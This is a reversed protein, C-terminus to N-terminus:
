NYKGDDESPVADSEDCGLEPYMDDEDVPHAAPAPSHNTAPPPDSARARGRMVMRRDLVTSQFLRLDSDSLDTSFDADSVVLPDDAGYHMRPRPGDQDPPATVVVRAAHELITEHDRPANHGAFQAPHGPAFRAMFRMSADHQLYMHRLIGRDMEAVGKGQVEGRFLDRLAPLPTDPPLAAEAGRGLLALKKRSRQFSLLTVWMQVIDPYAEYSVVVDDATGFVTLDKLPLQYEDPACLGVCIARWHLDKVTRLSYMKVFHSLADPTHARLAPDAIFMTSLPAQWHVKDHVSTTVDEPADHTTRPLHPSGMAAGTIHRGKSALITEPDAHYTRLGEHMCMHWPAGGLLDAYTYAWNYVRMHGHGDPHLFTCKYERSLTADVAVVSGDTDNPKVREVRVTLGIAAFFCAAIHRRNLNSRRQTDRYFDKDMTRAAKTRANLRQVREDENKAKSLEKEVRRMTIGQFCDAAYADYSQVVLMFKSHEAAGCKYVGVYGDEGLRTLSRVRFEAETVEEPDIRTFVPSDKVFTEFQKRLNKRVDAPPTFPFVSVGRGFDPIPVVYQAVDALRSVYRTFGRITDRSERYDLMRDVSEAITSYRAM